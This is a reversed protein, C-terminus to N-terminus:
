KIGYESDIEEFIDATSGDFFAVIVEDDGLNKLSDAFNRADTVDQESDDLLEGVFYVGNVTEAKYYGKKFIAM